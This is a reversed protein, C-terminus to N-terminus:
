PSMPKKIGINVETSATLGRGIKGLKVVGLDNPSNSLYLFFV